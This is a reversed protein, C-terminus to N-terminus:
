LIIAGESKLNQDRIFIQSTASNPLNYRTTSSSGSFPSVAVM